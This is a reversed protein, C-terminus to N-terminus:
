IANVSREVLIPERIIVRSIAPKIVVNVVIVIGSRNPIGSSNIWDLVGLKNDSLGRDIVNM